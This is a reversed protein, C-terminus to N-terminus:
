RSDGRNIWYLKSKFIVFKGELLGDCNLIEQRSDVQEMREKEMEYAPSYDDGFFVNSSWCVIDTVGSISANGLQNNGIAGTAVSSIFLIASLM